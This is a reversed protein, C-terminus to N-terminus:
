KVARPAATLDGVLQALAKLDRTELIAAIKKPDATTKALNDAAKKWNKDLASTTESVAIESVLEQLATVIRTDASEYYRGVIKQQYASLHQGKAM